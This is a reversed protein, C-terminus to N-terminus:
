DTLVFDRVQKDIQEPTEAVDFAKGNSLHVTTCNKFKVYMVVNDWNFVVLREDPWMTLNLTRAKAM